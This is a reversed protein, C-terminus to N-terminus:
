PTAPVSRRRDELTRRIETMTGQMAVMTASLTAINVNTSGIAKILDSVSGRMEKLGDKQDSATQASDDRIRKVEEQTAYTSPIKALESEASSLRTGFTGYLVGLVMAGTLLTTLMSLGNGFTFRKPLSITGDTNAM